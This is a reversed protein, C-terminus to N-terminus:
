DLGDTGAVELEEIGHEAPLAALASLQRILAREVVRISGAGSLHAPDHFLFEGDERYRCGAEDCLAVSPDVFAVDNPIVGTLRENIAVHALTVARSSLGDGGGDRLYLSRVDIPFIPTQGVVVIPVRTSTLRALTALLGDLGGQRRVVYEWRAALVVVDFRGAEVM